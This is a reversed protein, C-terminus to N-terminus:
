LILVLAAFGMVGCVLPSGRRFHLEECEWDAVKDNITNIRSDETGLYDFSIFCEM